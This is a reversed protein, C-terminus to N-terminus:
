NPADKTLFKGLRPLGTKRLMKRLDKPTGDMASAKAAIKQGITSVTDPEAHAIELLFGDPDRRLVGHQGLIRTPFDRLNATLLEDARGKIAAALVHVDNADPLLLGDLDSNCVDILSEPRLARLLTIEGEAVRAAEPGHRIAARHWEELIRASWLPQMLGADAVGLLMERLVSPFLVCADLLVRTM